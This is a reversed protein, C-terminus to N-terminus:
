SRRPIEFWQGSSRTQVVAQGFYCLLFAFIPIVPGFHISDVPSWHIGQVFPWYQPLRKGIKKPEPPWVSFLPLFTWEAPFYVLVVGMVTVDFSPWSLKIGRGIPQTHLLKNLSVDFLLEFSRIMTEKYPSDAPSVECLVLLASLMEM